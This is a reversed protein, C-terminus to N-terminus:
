KVILERDGSEYIQHRFTPALVICGNSAEGPRERSDGHILFGSRGYMMNGPYPTLRLTYPGAHPHKFPKGKIKYKGRPLPGKGELKEYQPDDKYGVAGAYMANFKFNGNHTFSKKRVSYIWTMM